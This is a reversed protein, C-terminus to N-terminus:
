ILIDYNGVSFISAGAQQKCYSVMLVFRCFVLLIAALFVCGFGGWEVKTVERSFGPFWVVCGVVLFLWLWLWLWFCCLWLWLWLWVVSVNWPDHNVELKGPKFAISRPSVGQHDTVNQDAGAQNKFFVPGGNQSFPNKQLISFILNYIKSSKIFTYM